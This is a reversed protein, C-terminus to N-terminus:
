VAAKDKSPRGGVNPETELEHQLRAVDAPDILYKLINDDDILGNTVDRAPITPLQGADIYQYVRQPTVGM